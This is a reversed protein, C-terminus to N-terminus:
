SNKGKRSTSGTYVIDFDTTVLYPIQTSEFVNFIMADYVGLASTESIQYM